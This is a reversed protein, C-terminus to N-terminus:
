IIKNLELYFYKLNYFSYEERPFTETKGIRPLKDM